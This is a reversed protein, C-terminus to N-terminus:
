QSAGPLRAMYDSVAALAQEDYDTVAEVMEPHANRRHGDRIMRAERLLYAYHQGAVRPYFQDPDGEGQEGHCSACQAQYLQEGQELNEGPGLGIETPSPLQQLYVAIDAIEQPTVVHEGAYPYMKQNDRLGARVDTLQKILVSAHQGALRPYSGDIEGGADPDHCGQCVEFAIEGRLADGQAQLAILKEGRMENWVYGPTEIGPMWPQQPEDSAALSTSLSAAGLSSAALLLPTPRLLKRM